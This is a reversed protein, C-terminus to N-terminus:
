LPSNFFVNIPDPKKLGNAKTQTRSAPNKKNHEEQEKQQWSRQLKEELSKVESDAMDFFKHGFALLFHIIAPPFISRFLYM